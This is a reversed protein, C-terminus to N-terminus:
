LSTVTYYAISPPHMALFKQKKCVALIKQMQLSNRAEVSNKFWTIQYLSTVIYYVISSIDMALFKRKECLALIKQMQLSNRAQIKFGNSPPSFKECRILIEQMISLARCISGFIEGILRSFRGLYAM